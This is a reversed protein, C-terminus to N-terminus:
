KKFFSELADALSEPSPYPAILSVDYGAETIASATIKGIAAMKVNNYGSFFELYNNFGSPSTFICIDAKGERIFDALSGDMDKVAITEYVNLRKVFAKASLAEYLFRPALTGQVLLIRDNSQIVKDTLYLALDEATTGPNLYDIKYGFKETEKMTSVGTAVIKLSEPLFAGGFYRIINGFFGRVGKKSTFVLFQYKGKVLAESVDDKGIDLTRTQIMPLNIVRAGRASLIDMLEGAQDAPQTTIILKGALSQM